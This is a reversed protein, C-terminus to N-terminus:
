LLKFNRSKKGVRRHTAKARGAQRWWVPLALVANAFNFCGLLMVVYSGAMYFLMIALANTAMSVAWYEAKKNMLLFQNLLNLSVNTYDLIHLKRVGAEFMGAMFTITALVIVFRAINPIFSPRKESSAGCTWRRYTISSMVIFYLQLASQGYIGLGFYHISFLVCCTISYLLGLPNQRRILIAALISLGGGIFEIPWIEIGLLDTTVFYLAM